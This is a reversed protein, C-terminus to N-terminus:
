LGLGPKVAQARDSTKHDSKVRPNRPGACGRASFAFALLASGLLLVSGPEPIASPTQTVDLNASRLNSTGFATRGAYDDDKPLNHTSRASFTGLFLASAAPAMIGGGGVYEWSLNLIGPDDSPTVGSPTLGLNQVPGLTWDAATTAISGPIYGAFDYITLLGDCIGGPVIANCPTGPANLRSNPGLFVDYSWTHDDVGNMTVIPAAVIIVTAGAPLGLIVVSLALLLFKKM